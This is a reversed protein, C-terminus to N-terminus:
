VFLRKFFMIIKDFFGINSLNVNIDKTDIIQDNKLLSLQITNKENVLANTPIEINYSNSNTVEKKQNQNNIKINIYYKNNKQLEQNKCDKNLSKYNFTSPITIIQSNILFSKTKYDINLSSNTVLKKIDNNIIFYECSQNNKDQNNITFLYYEKNELNFDFYKNDGVNANVNICKQNLCVKFNNKSVGNYLTCELKNNDKSLSCDYSVKNSTENFSSSYIYNNENTIRYKSNDIYKSVLGLEIKSSQPSAIISNNIQTSLTKYKINLNMPYTYIYGSDALPFKLVNYLTTSEEPKLIITKTKGNLVKTDQTTILETELLVYYPNNNKIITEVVDYSNIGVQTYLPRQKVEINNLTTSQYKGNTEVISPKNLKYNPKIDYKTSKPTLKTNRGVWQFNIFEKDIKNDKNIEIHGVDVYGYEGYTVDFPIWKGGIYVESWAHPSFDDHINTYALGSIARAPVNISRLTATFLNTIEDCAGQKNKLTWSAKQQANETLTNLDYHINKHLYDAIMVTNTFVDETLNLSKAFQNVNKDNSDIYETPKLYYKLSQLEQANYPYKAQTELNNSYITKPITSKMSYQYNIAKLLEQNKLDNIIKTPDINIILNNNVLKENEKKVYNPPYGSINFTISKINFDSSTKEFTYPMIMNFDITAKDTNIFWDNAYVSTILLLSLIFLKYKM